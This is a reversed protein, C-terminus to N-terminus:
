GVPYKIYFGTGVTGSAISDGATTGNITVNPTESTIAVIAAKAAGSEFINGSGSFQQIEGTNSARVPCPLNVMLSTAPGASLVGVIEGWVECYPSGPPQSYEGIRVTQSTMTGTSPTIVPTYQKPRYDEAFLPNFKRFEGAWRQLTMKVDSTLPLSLKSM